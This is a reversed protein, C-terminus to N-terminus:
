SVEELTTDCGLRSFIGRLVNVGDQSQVLVRMPAHGHYEPDSWSAVVYVGKPEAPKPPQKFARAAEKAMRQSQHVSIFTWGREPDNYWYQWTRENKHNAVAHMGDVTGWLEALSYFVFRHGDIEQRRIHGAARLAQALRKTRPSLEWKLDTIAM